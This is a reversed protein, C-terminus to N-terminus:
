FAKKIKEQMEKLEEATSNKGQWHKLKDNEFRPIIHFHTHFVLQGAAKENNIGINYGDANVAKQIINAIKKVNKILIELQKDDTESFKESHKKPVVLTHGINIPHIDLFALVEKDEYIKSSPIEGKIIKCFICTEM